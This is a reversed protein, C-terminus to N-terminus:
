SKEQINGVNALIFQAHTLIVDELHAKLLLKARGQSHLQFLFKRRPQKDRVVKWQLHNIQYLVEM